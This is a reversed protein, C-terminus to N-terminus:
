VKPLRKAAAESLQVTVSRLEGPKAEPMPYYLSYRTRIRRMADRFSSGPDGGRVMDGGTKEAVGGVGVQWALMQPGMITIAIRRAELKANRVVLASLLADAEWLANVVSAEKRTRQGYNDTIVLVARRRHTRPQHMFEKAANEVATQIFTAGAFKLGLVRSQITAQVADLDTTFPAIVRSKANFVMVAVRDGPQLERLGERAAAAVAQVAPKMSASIDFLLILDLAEDGIAFQAISQEQRNDLIRFENRTLGEVVRGDETRVEVDVHVLSVGTRFTADQGAALVAIFGLVGLKRMRDRM